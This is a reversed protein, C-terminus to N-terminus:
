NIQHAGTGKEDWKCVNEQGGGVLRSLILSLCISEPRFNINQVYKKSFLGGSLLCKGVPITGCPHSTVM